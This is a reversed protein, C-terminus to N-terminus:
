VATFPKIRLFINEPVHSLKGLWKRYIAVAKDMPPQQRALIEKTRCNILKLTPHPM